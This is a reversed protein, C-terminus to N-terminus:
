DRYKSARMSAMNVLNEFAQEIQTHQTVNPFNAEIHVNQDLQETNNIGGLLGSAGSMLSNIEGSAISNIANAMSRVIQVANLINSTDDQNLVLEGQHLFALRGEADSWSGTYGGTDFTAISMGMLFKQYQAMLADIQQKIAAADTKPNGTYEMGSTTDLGWDTIEINDATLNSGNLNQGTDYASRLNSLLTQVNMVKNLYKDMYDLLKEMVEIQAQCSKILEDNATILNQANLINKDLANGEKDVAQEITELSTGATNLMNKVNQDYDATAQNIQKMMDATAPLIGGQGVITNSLDQIQSQMYPINEKMIEMQEEMTLASTDVEMGDFFSGNLYNLLYKNDETLGSMLKATSEKLLDIRGQIRKREEEDQTANYEATLDRMKEIYDKYTDYLTNLNQKYHQKDTNYLNAQADALAAQLDGLKQEDAVYQYTYNGQSDRRLRMKTKNDRAEELALRAKEVELSAKARELDYETLHDKERLLKLQDNMLKNLAQQSKPSGALNGIQSQYLREVEDIGTKTEFTDLFNDDYNSIYDWQEDLFDLGRGGTLTNNLRDIIGNVRNEFQNALNDIMDELKSNLNDTVDDLNKKVKEWAEQNIINGDKDYYSNLRQQWYDQQKKLSELERENNTKQLNYYKQMSDYAKDGYLLEVMKVNHDILDNVREYQDIQEDMKDKASDIADLYNDKINDVMDQIEELDDMQQKMYEELDEKAQALNNGYISSTGGANMITIEDKIKKIQNATQQVQKSNFYSMLEKASAKASGLFDNKDLKKIFKNEFDLWEREFDGTDISLDVKIKSMAILNEYIKDQIQQQQNAIDRQLKLTDDYQKINSKIADYKEKELDLTNQAQKKIQEMDDKQKELNAKNAEQEDASMSNYQDVYRNYAEEAAWVQRNYDDISKNYNDRADDLAKNYNAIQGSADFKISDGLDDVLENRLRVLQTAAIGSKQDLLSKQKELQKNQQQLNKLRDRNVLKKQEKQIDDLKDEQKQLELNIDHYVDSRDKISDKAESLKQPKVTTPNKSKAGSGSSKGGTNKPTQPIVRSGGVRGLNAGGTFKSGKIVPITVTNGAGVQNYFDQSVVQRFTTGDTLQGEAVYSTQNGSAQDKSLTVTVYEIDPTYGIGALIGNIEEEAAGSEIVFRQLAQYFPAEDIHTGVQIEGWDTQSILNQLSQIEANFQQQTLHAPVEIKQMNLFALANGLEQVATIDGEAIRRIEDLHQEIFSSSVDQNFMDSVAQQTEALVESSVQGGQKLTEKWTKQISEIGGVLDELVAAVETSDDIHDKLKDNVWDLSDAQENFLQALSKVNELELGQADSVALIAQAYQQASLTDFLGKNRTSSLEGLDQQSYALSLEKQHLQEETLEKNTKLQDELAQKNKTIALFIQNLQQIQITHSNLKQKYINYNDEQILNANKLYELQKQALDYNIETVVHGGQFKHEFNEQSLSEFNTNDVQQKLQEIQNIFPKLSAQNAEKYFKEVEGTFMYMGNTLQIFSDEVKIGAEVLHNYAQQDIEEGYQLTKGNKKDIIDHINKYIQQASLAQEANKIQNIFQQLKDDSVDELQIGAENLAQKFDDLTIDTGTLNDVIQKFPLIEQIDLGQLIQETNQFSEFGNILSDELLNGIAQQVAVSMEAKARHKDKFNNIYDQIAQPLTDFYQASAASIEEITSSLAQKVDQVSVDEGLMDAIAQIVADNIGTDDVQMLNLIEQTSLNSWDINSLGKSFASIIKQQTNDFKNLVQDAQAEVQEYNTASFYEAIRNFIDQQKVAKWKNNLQDYQKITNGVLKVQTDIVLGTAEAYDNLIAQYDLIQSYLAKGPSDGQFFDWQSKPATTDVGAFIKKSYKEPTWEQINRNIYALTLAQLAQPNASNKYLDTQKIPSQLISDTLVQSAQTNANVQNALNSVQKINRQIVEIDTKGLSTNQELWNSNKLIYEGHTNIADVVQKLQDPTLGGIGDLDRSKNTILSYNQAETSAKDASAYALASAFNRNQYIQRVAQQGEETIYLLGDRTSEIYNRLEPFEQMLSLVQDNTEQLADRWEQTGKTLEDFTDRKSALDDLSSKLNKYSDSVNNYVEQAKKTNQAAEKAADAAKNWAKYLTVGIAVAAIGAAVAIGGPGALFGAIKSFVAGLSSSLATGAASLRTTANISEASAEALQKKIFSLRSAIQGVKQPDASQVSKLLLQKQEQLKQQQALLIQQRKEATRKKQLLNIAQLLGIEIGFSSRLRSLSNIIMPITMGLNTFTQLIKQGTSINENRWVKTLNIVSNIGAAFQGIAAVANVINTINFLQQFGKNNNQIISKLQQTKNNLNQQEQNATNITNTYQRAKADAEDLANGLVFTLQAPNKEINAFAQQLKTAANSNLNKYSALFQNFSETLHDTVQGTQQFRSYLQRLDASSGALDGIAANLKTVDATEQGWLQRTNIGGVTAAYKEVQNRRDQLLIKSNELEDLERVLNKQNNISAQDLVSYYKQLEALYGTMQKVAPNEAGGKSNQFTKLNEIDNRLLQANNRANQFNTVLNNIQKAITGSFVQTFISGLALIANKGGGISQILNGFLNVAGTGFDVLGKLDDEDILAAKVKEGAAGLQEMKASLSEMYIANKQATAGQAEMSVNVLDSYKGWNEFLALLNNYQRQGAMTRALYIQQEHSLTEWKGGIEDIVDGTDRLRGNADLVNVGVQAMKASYNGLSIQADDAGTAIDNIRSYITKLANGVSEPAQRTTAVITAIQANLSDVPVGLLNASSAVKSMAIALQSMNSASSDAVAALKDVYLEAEENAVKYGNWVATLYDAMEQGAGTINQAKLVSQTRAQVSAEDLGQQYFTLAAKTYDMTSRGLAQASNNAQVAFNAMEDSSQKTVIRIDNLSSDLAKVYDFAQRVSNTFNNMVSSAIGWKVTNAMTEGMQSVLSNTQKLQMNTTLVESAMRSFAVQGQAGAKSFSNYIGDISLKSEKLSANFQQTNLSNLNVNFAKTLAAQVQGAVRKIQELDQRPGKFDKFKINQLDQLSKKVANVSAQDVNYGVQFNIRNNNNPM